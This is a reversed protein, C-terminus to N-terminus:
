FDFDDLESKVVEKQQKEPKGTRKKPTIGQRRFDAIERKAKLNDPNWKLIEQYTDASEQKMGISKLFSALKFRLELNGPDLEIAINYNKVAENRTEARTAQIDALRIYFPAQGPMMSIAKRILKIARDPDNKKSFALIGAQYFKMANSSHEEKKISELMDYYVPSNPDFAIAQHFIERAKAFNGAKFEAMGQNFLILAKSKKKVGGERSERLSRLYKKREKPDTLTHYAKKYIERVEVAKELHKKDRDTLRIGRPDIKRVAKVFAKHIARKDANPPIGFLEFYTMKKMRLRNHAMTVNSVFRRYNVKASVQDEVTVVNDEEDFDDEPEPEPEPQKKAPQKKEIKEPAPKEPKGASEGITGINLDLNDFNIIDEMSSTISSLDRLPQSDSEGIRGFSSDPIGRSLHGNIEQLLKVIEGDPGLEKSFKELRDVAIRLLGRLFPRSDPPRARVKARTVLIGRKELAALAQIIERRSDSLAYWYDRPTIGPKYRSLLKVENLPLEQLIEQFDAPSIWYLRLDLDPFVEHIDALEGVDPLTESLWDRFPIDFRLFDDESAPYFHYKGDSEDLLQFFLTEAQFYKACQLQDPNVFGSDLITQEPSEEFDPNDLLKKKGDASILRRKVLIEMLDPPPIAASIGSLKGAQFYLNFTGAECDIELRGAEKKSVALRLLEAVTLSGPSGEFAM